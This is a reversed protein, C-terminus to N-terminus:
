RIGGAFDGVSAAILLIATVSFVIGASLIPLVAAWYLIPRKVRDSNQPEASRVASINGTILWNRAGWLLLLAVLPIMVLRVLEIM